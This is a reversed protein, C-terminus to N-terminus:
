FNELVIARTERPLTDSSVDVSSTGAFDVQNTPFHKLFESITHLNRLKYRPTRYHMPILLRPDVTSVVRLLEELTIVPFGGAHGLLVDVGEFFALQEDSFDNGMDGMHGIEIDEVRFRYMANQDPHGSPHDVHELAEIARFEIGHSATTGGDLSVVLADIVTAGPKKPVLHDNDHFDDNSSSKIVIDAKEPFPRFGAKEPDYPDTVVLLGDDRRIGFSAQGYWTFNVM